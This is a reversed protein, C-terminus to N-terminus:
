PDPNLCKHGLLPSDFPVSFTSHVPIGSSGHGLGLGPHCPVEPLGLVKSDYM